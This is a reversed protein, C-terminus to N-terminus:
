FVSSLSELSELLSSEDGLLCLFSLSSLPDFLLFSLDGHSSGLSELFGDDDLNLLELLDSEDSESESLVDLLFFFFLLLFLLLVLFCILNGVMLMSLKLHSTVVVINFVKMFFHCHCM